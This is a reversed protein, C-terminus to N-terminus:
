SIVTYHSYSIFSITHTTTRLVTNILVVIGFWYLSLSHLWESVVPSFVGHRFLIGDSSLNTCVNM